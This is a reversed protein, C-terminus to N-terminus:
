GSGPSAPSVRTSCTSTAGTAAARTPPPGPRVRTGPSTRSAETRVRLPSYDIFRVTGSREPPNVSSSTSIASRRVPSTTPAARTRSTGPSAVTRVCGSAASMCCRTRAAASAMRRWRVIAPAPVSTPGSAPLRTPDNAGITGLRTPSAPSGGATARASAIVIVYTGAVYTCPVVRSVTDSVEPRTIFSPGAQWDPVSIHPTCAPIVITTKSREARCSTKVTVRTSLPM